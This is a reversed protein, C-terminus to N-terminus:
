ETSVNGMIEARTALVNTKTINAVCELPAQFAIASIDGMPSCLAPAETYAPTTTSACTLKPKASIDLGIPTANAATPISSISVNGMIVRITRATMRILKVPQGRSVKKAYATSVTTDMGVPAETKAHFVLVIMLTRNAVNAPSDM